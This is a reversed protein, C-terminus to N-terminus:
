DRGLYELIWALVSVNQGDFSDYLIPSRREDLGADGISKALVDAPLLALQDDFSKYAPLNVANKLHGSLYKMPRRPDLILYNSDDLREAVWATTVFQAM